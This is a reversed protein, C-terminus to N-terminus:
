AFIGHLFWRKAGERERFIWLRTGHPDTAV